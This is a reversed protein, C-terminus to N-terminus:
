KGDQQLNFHHKQKLPLNQVPHSATFFPVLEYLTQTIVFIQVLYFPWSDAAGRNTYDM